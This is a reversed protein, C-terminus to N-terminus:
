RECPYNYILAERVAESDTLQLTEPHGQLYEAISEVVELASIGDDICYVPEQPVQTDNLQMMRLTGLRTRAARDSYSESGSKSNEALTDAYMETEIGSAALFGQMFAVCASGKDSDPNELFNNCSQELDDGSLWEAAHLPMALACLLLLLSSATRSRYM